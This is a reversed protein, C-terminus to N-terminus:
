MQLVTPSALKNLNSMQKNSRCPQSFRYDFPERHQTFRKFLEGRSPPARRREGRTAASGHLARLPTAQAAPRPLPNGRGRSRCLAPKQEQLIQMEAKWAVSGAGSSLGPRVDMYARESSECSVGPPRLATHSTCPHLFAAPPLCIKAGAFDANGGDM